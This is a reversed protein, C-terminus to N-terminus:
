KCIQSKESFLLQLIYRSGQHFFCAATKDYEPRLSIFVYKNSLFM